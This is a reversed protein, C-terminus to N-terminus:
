RQRRSLHRLQQLGACLRPQARLRLGSQLVMSVTIRLATRTATTHPASPACAREPPEGTHSIVLAPIVAFMPGALKTLGSPQDSVVVPV